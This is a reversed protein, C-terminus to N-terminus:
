QGPKKMGLLAFLTNADANRQLLEDLLEALSMNGWSIARKVLYPVPSHPETRMLYESAERLRQYADARSAIAGIAHLVPAGAQGDDDTSVRPRTDEVTIATMAPIEGKAVREDVLKSIYSHIGVVVGRLPAVSPADHEGCRENLVRQLEDLAGAVGALEVALSAFWTAPTNAISVLFKAQPVMGREQATAAATANVKVLNSLYLGAEWDKWAYPATDEAVPATVPVSRLPLALKDVAWEIPSIRGRLEGDEILPHVSDWFDRCLGTILRAGVDLGPFGYLNIWAETLWAAIQLDKSRSALAESCIEAVGSWDARKLERQWVGQPLAPDDQERMKKIDDYVPEYRLVEGGPNDASIPALLRELDPPPPVHSRVAALTSTM